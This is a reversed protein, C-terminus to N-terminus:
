QLPHDEEKARWGTLDDRDTEDYYGQKERLM